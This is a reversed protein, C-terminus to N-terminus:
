ANTQAVATRRRRMAVGVIGFGTILIAWTAPEPVEPTVPPDTPDPNKPGFPINGDFNGLHNEGGQIFKQAVLTGEIPTVNTVTAFPALISGHVMTNTTLSTANLFNFIVDSNYAQGGGLTNFNWNYSGAGSINVVTTLGPTFDYALGSISGFFDSADVNIVAFGDDGAVATMKVNNHDSFNFSSGATTALEGLSASLFTLDNYLKNKEASIDAALASAFGGGLGSNITAGNANGSFSGGVDITTGASGNTNTLNGGVQVNANHANFNFDNANGGIVLGPTTALNGSGGNSGNHLKGGAADGGVTLIARDSTTQGQSGNGIGYIGGGSTLNGGVFTKGEVDHAASMDGFVIVNLEKMAQLGAAADGSAQATTAFAFLAAVASATRFITKM